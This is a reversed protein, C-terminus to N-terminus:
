DNSGHHLIGLHRDFEREIAGPDASNYLVLGKLHELSDVEVADLEVALGWPEARVVRGRGEVSIRDLGGDLILRVGCSTGPPLDGATAVAVGKVSLDRVVGRIPEGSGTTLEVNIPVVVRTSRRGGATRETEM